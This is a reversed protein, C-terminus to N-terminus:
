LHSSLNPDVQNRNPTRFEDISELELEPKSKLEPISESKPDLEGEPISQLEPTSELKPATDLEPISKLEQIWELGPASGIERRSDIGIRFGIIMILHFKDFCM